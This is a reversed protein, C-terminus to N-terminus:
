CNVVELCNVSINCLLVCRVLAIPSSADDSPSSSSSTDTTGPLKVNDNDDADDHEDKDNNEDASDCLWQIARMHSMRCCM